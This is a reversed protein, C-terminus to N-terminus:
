SKRRMFWRYYVAFAVSTVSWSVSFCDLLTRVSRFRPFVFLVWLIRLVCVGFFTILTPRLSEGMGRLTSFFVGSPIYLIYFPLLYRMMSVGIALVNTDTTFLGLWVPCGTYMIVLTTGMFLYMLVAGQRTVKHVRDMRGAGLNQGVFTTISVAFAQELIWYFSEIRVFGAYAAVTDTGFTNVASTLIVCSLTYMLTELGLPIGLRLMKSVIEPQLRLGRLDLRPMLPAGFAPDAGPAPDTADISFSPDASASDAGPTEMGETPKWGKEFGALTRLVLVASLTQTLVTALAAGGIGMHLVAVFLLDLLINLGSSIILFRLPRKSDGVARLVGAGMNYLANPILGAFVIRLYILSGALTEQPAGVALLAARSVFLGVVTFVAGMVLALAVANHLGDDLLKKWRAGYAQSLIVGAGGSVGIMFETVMAYISGASGGVATLAIKGVFRGVIITDATNYLLQLCSAALLPVFYLLLQKWIVGHTIPNAAAQPAYPTKQQDNTSPMNAKQPLHARKCTVTVLSSPIM